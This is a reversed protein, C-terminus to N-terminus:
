RDTSPRDQKQSGSGNNEEEADIVDLLGRVFREAIMGLLDQIDVIDALALGMYEERPVRAALGDSTNSGARTTPIQFRIIM